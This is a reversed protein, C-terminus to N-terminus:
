EFVPRAHLRVPDIGVTRKIRQAAPAVFTGNDLVTAGRAILQSASALLAVSDANKEPGYTGAAVNTRVTSLKRCNKWGTDCTLM